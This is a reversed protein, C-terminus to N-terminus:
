LSPCGLAQVALLYCSTHDPKPPETTCRFLAGLFVGGRRGGADATWSSLKRPWPPLQQREKKGEIKAFYKDQINGPKKHVTSCVYNISSDLSQLSQRLLLTSNQRSCVPSQRRFSSIFTFWFVTIMTPWDYLLYEFWVLIKYYNYASYLLIFDLM